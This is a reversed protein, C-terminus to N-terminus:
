VNALSSYILTWMCHTWPYISIINYNNPTAHKEDETTRRSFQRFGEVRMRRLPFLFLHLVFNGFWNSIVQAERGPARREEAEENEYNKKRQEEEKSRTWRTRTAHAARYTKNKRRPGRRGKLVGDRSRTGAERACLLKFKADFFYFELVRVVSLLVGRAPSFFAFYFTHVNKM